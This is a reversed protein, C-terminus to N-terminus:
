KSHVCELWQKRSIMWEWDNEFKLDKIAEGEFGFKGDMLGRMALNEDRTAIEMVDLGLERFGYDFTIRLAEYAYGKGRASSNLMIGANRIRTGDVRTGILGIGGSGIFVGGELIVASVQTLPDTFTSLKQIWNQIAPLTKLNEVSKDHKINREDSYHELLAPADEPRLNRLELPYKKSILSFGHNSKDYLNTSHSYFSSSEVPASSSFVAQTPM